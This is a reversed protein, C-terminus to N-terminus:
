DWDRKRDGDREGDEPEEDDDDEEEEESPQISASTTESDSAGGDDIVTLTVIYSGAQTYNHLVSVGSGTSGDGFDWNYTLDSGEPDSSGSGDFEVPIGEIGTYPGGSDAEPPLNDTNVTDITATTSASATAGADDTVTLSVTYTGATAYAHSPNVSTGSSGDGFDWAYSVISGDPDNSASGDFNVAIGETGNYPGGADATPLLNPTAEITATATASATAGADDTVTLSVTYTGATAYAHSPNSGTGTNGDGFDWAYSVISGDPDNSGSGDFSVAIGETGSYPGGADATPLLNPTAEITATASASATAGADDTVTLSVSYTGATAYAHSPNSGTGTNGDGFDWAYSVISGDPDSSGSGDFSVAIGETGSYPGGADATPLLNPTAEI